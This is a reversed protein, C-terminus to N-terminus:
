GKLATEEGPEAILRNPADRKEAKARCDPKAYCAQNTQLRQARPTRPSYDFLKFLLGAIREIKRM